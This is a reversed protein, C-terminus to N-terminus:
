QAFVTLWMSVSFSGSRNAPLPLIEVHSCREEHRNTERRQARGVGLLGSRELCADVDERGSLSVLHLPSGPMLPARHREIIQNGNVEVIDAEIIRHLIAHEDHMMSQGLLRDFDEALEERRSERDFAHQRVFIKWDPFIARAVIRYAEVTTRSLVIGFDEARVGIANRDVHVWHCVRIVIRSAPRRGTRISVAVTRDGPKEVRFGFDDSDEHPM